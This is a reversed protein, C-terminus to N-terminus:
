TIYFLVRFDFLLRFNSGIKRIPKPCKKPKNKGFKFTLYYLVICDTSYQVQEKREKDLVITIEEQRPEQQRRKAAAPETQGDAATGEAASEAEAAAAMQKAADIRRQVNQYFRYALVNNKSRCIESNRNQESIEL